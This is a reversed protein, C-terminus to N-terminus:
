PSAGKVLLVNTFIWLMSYNLLRDSKTLAGYFLLSVMLGQTVRLVASAERFTLHPLFLLFLANLLLSFVFPHYLRQSLDRVSIILGAITPIISMPVVMLSILLFAGFHIQAAMLWGGFPVFIFPEGSSIGSDGLWFYLAVQYAAYPLAGAGLAILWRWNWKVLYYLGYAVLFILATEKALAALAFAIGTWVRREKMWALIAVQVFAQAVPDAMNSRLAIFQGGYFGYALAYWQSVDMGVLIRETMYTGLAIAALNVAILMWPILDPQGLAFLRALIPYLIRQYRYAPPVDDRFPYDHPIQDVAKPNEFFRHAIQYFYHGDYVVFARPNGGANILVALVYLSAIITVLLTPIGRRQLIFSYPLTEIM